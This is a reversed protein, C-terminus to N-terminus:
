PLRSRGPPLTAGLIRAGRPKRCLGADVAGHKGADTSGLRFSYWERRAYLSQFVQQELLDYLAEAEAADWAPDDGHEQGDGLGALKLRTPRRGGAMWSSLNIGGNVLVKM